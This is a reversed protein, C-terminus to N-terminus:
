KASKIKYLQQQLKWDRFYKLLEEDISKDERKLLVNLDYYTIEDKSEFSIKVNLVKYEIDSIEIIEGDLPKRIPTDSVINNTDSLVDNLINDRNLNIDLEREFKFKLRYKVM